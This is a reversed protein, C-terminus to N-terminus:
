GQQTTQKTQEIDIKKTQYNLIETKWNQKPGIRYFNLDRRELKTTHYFMYKIIYLHAQSYYKDM